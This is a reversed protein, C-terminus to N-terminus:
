FINMDVQEINKTRAMLKEMKGQIGTDFSGSKDDIICTSTDSITKNM